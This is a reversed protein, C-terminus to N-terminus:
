YKGEYGHSIFDYKSYWKHVEGWIDGLYYFWRAHIVGPSSEKEM